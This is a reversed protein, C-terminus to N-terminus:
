RQSLMYVGKENYNAFTDSTFRNGKDLQLQTNKLWSGDEEYGISNSNEKTIICANMSGLQMVICHKDKQAQTAAGSAM